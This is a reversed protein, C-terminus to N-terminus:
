SLEEVSTTDVYSSAVSALDTDETVFTLDLEEAAVVYAADYFTLEETTAIEMTRDFDLHEASEVAMEDKLDALFAVLESAEESTIRDQLVSAKWFVNGAEYFTLDLVHNDFVLELGDGDRELITAVLSSADFLRSM